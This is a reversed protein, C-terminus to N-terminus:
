SKWKESWHERPTGLKLALIRCEERTPLSRKGEAILLLQEEIYARRNLEKGHYRIIRWRAKLRKVLEM